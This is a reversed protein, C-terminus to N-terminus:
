AAALFSRVPEDTPEGSTLCDLLLAGNDIGSSELAAQMAETPSRMASELAQGVRTKADALITALTRTIATTVQEEIEELSLVDTGNQESKKM